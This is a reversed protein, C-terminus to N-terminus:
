AKIDLLTQLMSDATQITQVNASVGNQATMQGIMNQALDVNSGELGGQVVSARAANQANTEVGSQGLNLANFGGYIGSNQSIANM